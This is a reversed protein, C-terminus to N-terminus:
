RSASGDAFAAARARSGVATCCPSRAALRRAHAQEELRATRASRAPRTSTDVTLVNRSLAVECIVIEVQANRDARTSNMTGIGSILSKLTSEVDACTSELLVIDVNYYIEQILVTCYWIEVYYALVTCRRGVLDIDLVTRVSRTM